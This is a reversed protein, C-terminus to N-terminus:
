TIRDNTDISKEIDRILEERPRVDSVTNGKFLEEKMNNNFVRYKWGGGKISRETRIVFGKYQHLECAATTAQLEALHEAAIKEQLAKEYIAKNKQRLKREKQLVWLLLLTVAVTTYITLITM